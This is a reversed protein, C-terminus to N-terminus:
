KGEPNPNGSMGGTKRNLYGLIKHVKGAIPNKDWAREKWKKGFGINRTLIPAKSKRGMKDAFVGGVSTTTNLATSATAPAEGDEVLHEQTTAKGCKPCAVAGMSCEPFENYNFKHECKPCKAM